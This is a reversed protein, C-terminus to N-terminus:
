KLPGLLFLMPQDLRARWSGENHQAPVAKLVFRDGQPWSWQKMMADMNARTERIDDRLPSEPPMPGDYDVYLRVDKKLLDSKMVGILWNRILDKPEPPVSSPSISLCAAAGFVDSHEALMYLAVTGGRSSGMTMTHARDPLTPFAADVRPKLEEVVFRAYKPGDSFPHYEELRRPTNHIAVVIAPPALKADVLRVISEDVGWDVGGFAKDPDFLNQGDHMYIVPYRVSAKPDFGPPLWIEVDRKNGLIKSEVAPWSKLSGLVAHTKRAAPDAFRFRPISYEVTQDGTVTVTNNPPTQGTADLAENEWAGRTFKFEVKTGKAMKLVAERKTGVGTMKFKGPNWPGWEPLSGTVFVDGADAPVTAVIRLTASTSPVPAPKSAPTLSAAPKAAPKPATAAAPTKTHIPTAMKKESGHRCGGLAMALLLLVTLKRTM